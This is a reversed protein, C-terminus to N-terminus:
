ICKQYKSDHRRTLLQALALELIRKLLEQLQRLEGLWGELNLQLLWISVQSAMTKGRIPVKHIKKLLNTWQTTERCVQCLVIERINTVRRLIELAPKIVKRRRLWIGKRLRVISEILRLGQFIRSSNLIMPLIGVPRHTCSPLEPRSISKTVVKRWIQRNSRRLLKMKAKLTNLM